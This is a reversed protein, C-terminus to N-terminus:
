CLPGNVYMLAADTGHGNMSAETDTFFISNSQIQTVCGCLKVRLTLEIEM